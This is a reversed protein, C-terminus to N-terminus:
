YLVFQHYYGDWHLNLGQSLSPHDGEMSDPVGLPWVPRNTNESKRQKKDRAQWLNATLGIFPLSGICVTTVLDKTGIAEKRKAM